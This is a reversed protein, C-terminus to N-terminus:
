FLRRNSIPLLVPDSACQNNPNSLLSSSRMHKVPSRNESRYQPPFNAPRRRMAFITEVDRRLLHQSLNVLPREDDLM